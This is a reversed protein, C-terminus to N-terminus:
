FEIGAQAKVGLKFPHKVLTMETVLDAMEILAAPAGRGTIVVHQSPPRQELAPLVDALPLSEDRLLINLEDLIVLACHPDALHQRAIEWARRAAEIDKGRDQTEWTFGEGLAQISLLPAFRELSKREATERKGKVFQIIAVQMGHGIARLAMGLAATTKGKGPGTHVIVLGKESNKGAMMKDRATKKRAMKDHHSLASTDVDTM